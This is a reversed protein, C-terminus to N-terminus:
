GAGLGRTDSVLLDAYETGAAELEFRAQPHSKAGTVTSGAVASGRFNRSAMSILSNGDRLLEKIEKKMKALTTLRIEAVDTLYSAMALTPLHAKGWRILEQTLELCYNVSCDHLPLRNPMVLDLRDGEETLEFREVLNLADTQSLSVNM